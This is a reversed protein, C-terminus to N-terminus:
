GPGEELMWDTVGRLTRPSMLASVYGDGCRFVQRVALPGRSRFAGGRELNTGHLPPFPTANMLTWMVATQMSVDVHQGEGTMQRHWFAAMTGAAAQGAAHLEAQPASVRVPPRDADGCIYQMGGMSWAVLDPALYAAYPGTQGFPTISTYVLGPNLAGLEDYGLGLLSMHGPKFSEILIDAKKVLSRLQRAGASSDLDVTVSRKNVCYAAWFLSRDPGPAGCLFPGRSRTPSGGPPEVKIVDAGLDGLVKGCWNFGGETLDLVTFPSLAQPERDASPM